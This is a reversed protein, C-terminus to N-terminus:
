MPVKLEGIYAGAPTVWLVVWLSVRQHFKSELLDRSPHRLPGFEFGVKEARWGLLRRSHDM